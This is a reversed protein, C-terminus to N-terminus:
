FFLGLKYSLRLRFLSAVLELDTGIKFASNSNTSDESSATSTEELSDIEIEDSLESNTSGKCFSNIDLRFSSNTECKGVM